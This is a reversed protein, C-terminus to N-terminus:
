LKEGGELEIKLSLFKLLDKLSIIGVLHGADVVMLRSNGSRNMISLAKLADMDPSVSNEPDCERMVEKVTHNGRSERPVERVQQLSVCGLVTGNNAVPFMKYHYKYIFDEVLQDLSIDSPVTIPEPNMFRRVKEGEMAKRVLLQQYSQSAAGRLFMGILFWWIGGIINGTLFSFIGLAILGIGLISGGQTAIRTAWRLDNKWYWLISRFVRGGDLPFGPLMNFAALIANIAALYGLIGSLPGSGLTGLVLLYASLSLSALGLSSIPGAIAMFFEAKPSPPEEAMEAMGGFIFLTIGKMPLGFRRAVISHFFEHIVISLFLGFAGVIGMLWYTGEPYGEYSSPFVSAALTWTVLIAIIIWSLDIRVSFGFMKFLTIGKGFMIKGGFYLKGFTEKTTTGPDLRRSLNGAIPM